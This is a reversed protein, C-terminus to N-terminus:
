FLSNEGQVRAITNVILLMAFNVVSNFLSVAASFSYQSQQMGQKYVYTSLIESTSLNLSNQMLFVKEFGVSMLQGCNLILLLVITPLIAPFDIYRCRQLKNAGDIIASEHLAPDVGSLAGIYIISNWGLGQWIGSWVYLHPFASASTLTNMPGDIVGLTNLLNSIIGSSPSFFVNIIAVIVVTSIFHPAYTVTQVIKKFRMHKCSNIMLALIVPLPFGAILQYISIRLTNWLVTMGKKMSFFRLFHKLGVWESGFIGKFTKYDEFAIVNGVMPIYNFILTYLIVPLLLLYIQWNAKIKKKIVEM